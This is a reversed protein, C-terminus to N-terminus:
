RHAEAKATHHPCYPGDDRGKRCGCFMQKAGTEIGVPWKCTRETLDILGVRKTVDIGFDVEDDVPLPMPPLAQMASARRVIANVKPQGRNGHSKAQRPPMATSPRARKELKLRHVKGIVASRTVGGGLENRIEGASKGENWMRKLTAVRDDSWGADHEIRAEGM